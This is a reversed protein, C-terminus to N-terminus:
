HHGILITEADSLAHEPGTMVIRDNLQLVPSPRLPVSEQKKRDQGELQYERLLASITVGTRETIELDSLTKGIVKSSASIRVIRYVGTQDIEVDATHKDKPKIILRSLLWETGVTTEKPLKRAKRAQTAIVALLVSLVVLFLKGVPMFTQLIAVLPMGLLLLVAGTMGGALQHRGVRGAGTSEPNPALHALQLGLARSLKIASLVMLGIGIGLLVALSVRAYTISLEGMDSFWHHLRSSIFEHLVTMGIIALWDLLLFVLPRLFVNGEGKKIGKDRLRKKLSGVWVPYNDLAARFGEPFRTEIADAMWNSNNFLFSSTLATIVAVSVTVSFLDPRVVGAAIGITMMVFAFEGFQGLVISSQFSNRFTQGAFLGGSTLAVANAAIVIFVLFFITGVNAIIVSPVLMMGVSVFFLATFVDRIPMILREITSARGSEAALMGAAFAGIALSFGASVALLALCFCFGISAIVLNEPREKDALKRLFQPIFLRGIGVVGILFLFFKAMIWVIDAAHLGAVGVKAVTTLVTMLIIAFLDHVITVSFVIGRLASSPRKEEFLKVIVVTSTAIMGAGLFVSEITSWGLLRGVGIGSAMVLSAQISAMLFATPGAKVVKKISFELGIGFMILIVGLEAMVQVNELEASFLWNGDSGFVIAALHPGVLLGALLYGFVVPLRLRRSVLTTVAATGLVLALDVLLRPIDHM